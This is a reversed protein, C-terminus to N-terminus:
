QSRPVGIRDYRVSSSPMQYQNNHSHVPEVKRRMRNIGYRSVGILKM